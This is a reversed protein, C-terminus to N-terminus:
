LTVRVRNGSTPNDQQDVSLALLAIEGSKATLNAIFPSVYAAPDTTSLGQLTVSGAILAANNRDPEFGTSSVDSPADTAPELLDSTNCGGILLLLLASLAAPFRRPM